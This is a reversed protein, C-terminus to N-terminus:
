NFGLATFTADETVKKSRPNSISKSSVSSSSYTWARLKNNRESTWISTTTGGNTYSDPVSFNEGYNVTIGDINWTITYKMVAYLSTVGTITKTKLYQASGSCSDATSEEKQTGKYSNTSWYHFTGQSLSTGDSSPDSLGTYSPSEGQTVWESQYEVDKNSDGRVYYTVKYSYVAYYATTKTVKTSFLEESDVINEYSGDTSWGLLKCTSEDGSLDTTIGGMEEAVDDGLATDRTVDYSKALNEDDYWFSVTYYTNDTQEMVVTTGYSITQEDRGTPNSFYEIVNM